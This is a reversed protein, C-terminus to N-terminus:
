AERPLTTGCRPCFLQRTLQDRPADVARHCRSCPLCVVERSVSGTRTVLPPPALNRRPAPSPSRWSLFLLVGTIVMLGVFPTAWAPGRRVMMPQAATAARPRRFRSSSSGLDRADRSAASRGAGAVASDPRIERRALLDRVDAADSTRQDVANMRAACAMTALTAVVAFSCLM